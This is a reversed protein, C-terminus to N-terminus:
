YVASNKGETSNLAFYDGNGVGYFPILEKQWDCFAIESTYVLIIDGNGNTRGKASANYIDGPFDFESMLEIFIKFDHPLEAGFFAELASWDEGTPADYEFAPKTLCRALILRMKEKTM